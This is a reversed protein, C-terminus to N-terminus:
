FSRNLFYAIEIYNLTTSSVDRKTNSKVEIPNIPLASSKNPTRVSKKTGTTTYLTQRRLTQEVTLLWKQIM